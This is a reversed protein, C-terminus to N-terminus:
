QHRGHLQRRVCLECRYILVLVDFGQTIIYQNIVLLTDQTRIVDCVRKLTFRFDTIAQINLFKKSSVPAIDSILTVAVPNSGM